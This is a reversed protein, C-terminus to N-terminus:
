VSYNLIAEARAQRIEYLSETLEAYAERSVFSELSKLEASLREYETEFARRTESSVIPMAELADFKEGLGDSLLDYNAVYTAAFEDAMDQTRAYMATKPTPFFSRVEKNISDVVSVLSAKDNKSIEGGIVGSGLLTVVTYERTMEFSVIGSPIQLVSQLVTTSDVGEEAFCQRLKLVTKNNAPQIEPGPAEYVVEGNLRKVQQVLSPSSSLVMVKIQQLVDVATSTTSVGTALQQADWQQGTGVYTVDGNPLKVEQLSYRTQGPKAIRSTLASFNDSWISTNMEFEKPTGATVTRGPVYATILGTRNDLVAVSANIVYSGNSSLDIFSRMYGDVSSQMAIQQTASLSLKVTYSEASLSVSKLKQMESRLLAELAANRASEQLFDLQEATKGVSALYETTSANPNNYAYLLFDCQWSNLHGVDRNFYEVAANEMGNVNGYVAITTLYRLLKDEGLTEELRKVGCEVFYDSKGGIHENIMYDRFVRTALGETYRERLGKAVVEPVSTTASAEDSVRVAFLLTDDADYVWSIPTVNQLTTEISQILTDAAQAAEAEDVQRQESQHQSYFYFAGAALGLIAVLALGCLVKRM